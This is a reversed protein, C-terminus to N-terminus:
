VTCYVDAHRTGAVCRGLWRPAGARGAREGAPPGRRTPRGAHGVPQEGVRVARPPAVPAVGEVVPVILM